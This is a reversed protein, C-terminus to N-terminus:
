WEKVFLYNFILHCIACPEKNEQFANLHATLPSVLVLNKTKGLAEMITTPFFNLAYNLNLIDTDVNQESNNRHTKKVYIM